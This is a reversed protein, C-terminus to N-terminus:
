LEVEKNMIDGNWENYNNIAVVITALLDHSNKFLKMRKLHSNEYYHTNEYGDWDINSHTTYKIIGMSYPNNKLFSNINGFYDDVLIDVNLISKDKTLIINDENFFDGYYPFVCNVLKSKITQYNSATALYIDCKDLDKLALLMDYMGDIPKVKKWFDDEILPYYIEEKSLLGKEIDEKFFNSISWNQIDEQKKNTGFRENITNLWSPITDILVDDLDFAIKVKKEM